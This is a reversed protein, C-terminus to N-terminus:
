KKVPFAIELEQYTKIRKGNKTDAQWHPYNQVLRLAEKDCGYGLKQVIKPNTIKGNPRIFFTIKVVGSITNKKAEKPYKLNNSVYKEFSIKSVGDKLSAGFNAKEAKNKSIKTSSRALKTSEEEEPAELFKDGSSFGANDTVNEDFDDAFSEELPAKHPSAIDQKRAEKQAISQVDKSEGGSIKARKSILNDKQNDTNQLLKIEEDAIERPYNQDIKVVAINKDIKDYKTEESLENQHAEEISKPPINQASSEPHNEDLNKSQTAETKELIEMEDSESIVGNDESSPLDNPMEQTSKETQSVMEDSFNINYVAFILSFSILLIISAAWRQNQFIFIRKKRPQIVAKQTRKALRNQLDDQDNQRTETNLMALGELADALFEDELSQAELDHQEADSLDGSLYKELQESTINKESDTHNPTSKM